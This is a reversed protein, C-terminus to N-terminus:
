LPSVSGSFHRRGTRPNWGEYESRSSGGDVAPGDGIRLALTAPLFVPAEFSIDASFADPEPSGVETLVRSALYMGHAISRRMGLVKASLASLHIPNFDGSVAAYSRGVDPGLRWLATPDPAAFDPAPRAEISKDLGPLFIGKALYTSIGRWLCSGNGESRPRTGGDDARVEVVVDVQTGARHGTLETAWARIALPQAYLIPEFQEIRNQLHIMGLLPLPFDERVMLSMAVPFALTHIFGAPMVDRASGGLLHQYETLRAVDALVSHVEHSAQPLEAPQGPQHGGLMRNKAAAAAATLYLRSLSPMEPLITVVGGSM